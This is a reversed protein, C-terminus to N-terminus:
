SSATPRPALGRPRERWELCRRGGREYDVCVQPRHEYISCLFRGGEERLAVCAGDPRKRMRREEAADDLETLALVLDVTLRAEDEPSLVIKHGFCCAGCTTCDLDM